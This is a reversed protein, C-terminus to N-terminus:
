LNFFRTFQFNSKDFSEIIEKRKGYIILCDIQYKSLNKLKPIKKFIYRTFKFRNLDEKMILKAYNYLIYLLISQNDEAEEYNSKKLIENILKSSSIENNNFKQYFRYLSKFEYCNFVINSPNLQLFVRNQIFKEFFASITDTSLSNKYFSKKIKSQSFASTLQHKKLIKEFIIFTTNEHETDEEDEEELNEFNGDDGINENFEYDNGVEIMCNDISNAQNNFIELDGNSFDESNEDLIGDNISNSRESLEVQHQNRIFEETYGDMLDIDNEYSIINSSSDNIDDNNMNENSQTRILDEDNRGMLDDENSNFEETLMNGTSDIQFDFNNLDETYSDVLDIDNLIINSNSDNIDDNNMNELNSEIQDAFIDNEENSSASNYNSDFFEGIEPNLEMESNVNSSTQLSGVTNRIQIPRSEIENMNTSGFKRLYLNFDFNNSNWNSALAIISEKRSEQFKQFRIHADKLDVNTRQGEFGLDIDKEIKTWQNGYKAFGVCLRVFEDDDWKVRRNVQKRQSIHIRSMQTRNPTLIPLIPAIQLPSNQTRVKIFHKRSPFFASESFNPLWKFDMSTFINVLISNKLNLNADSISHYAFLFKRKWFKLKSDFLKEPNFIKPIIEQILTEDKGKRLLGRKLEANFFISNSSSNLNGNKKNVMDLIELKFLDVVIKMKRELNDEKKIKWLKSIFNSDQFIRPISKSKRLLKETLIEFGDNRLQRALVDPLPRDVKLFKFDPNSRKIISEMFFSKKRYIVGGSNGGWFRGCLFQNRILDEIILFKLFNEETSLNGALEKLLSQLHLLIFSLRSVFNKTEFKRFLSENVQDLNENNLIENLQNFNMEFDQIRSRFEFRTGLNLEKSNELRSSLTKFYENIYELEDNEEFHKYM